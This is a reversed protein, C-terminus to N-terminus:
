MCVLTSVCKSINNCGIYSNELCGLELDEMSLDDEGEELFNDEFKPGEYSPSTGLNYDDPVVFDDM